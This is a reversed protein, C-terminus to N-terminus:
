PKGSAVDWKELRTGPWRRFSRPWPRSIRGSGPAALPEIFLLPIGSVGRATTAQYVCTMLVLICMNYMYIYICIYYTHTLQIYIHMYTLIYTHIYTLIYTLLYTHLYTLIYTHLYTLIYTHIYTHLYTLIYTHIYTCGANITFWGENMQKICFYAIGLPLIITISEGIKLLDLNEAPSFAHIRLCHAALDSAITTVQSIKWWGM